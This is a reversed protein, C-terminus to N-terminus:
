LNKIEQLHRGFPLIGSLLSTDDTRTRASMFSFHVKLLITTEVLKLIKVGIRFPLHDLKVFIKWIPAEVEVM